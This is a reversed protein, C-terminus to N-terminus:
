FINLNSLTFTESQKLRGTPPDKPQGNAKNALRNKRAPNIAHEVHRTVRGQFSKFSDTFGTWDTPGSPHPTDTGALFSQFKEPFTDSVEKFRSADTMKEDDGENLAETIATTAQEKTLNLATMLMNLTALDQTLPSNMRLRDIWEEISAQTDYSHTPAPRHMPIPTSGALLPSDIM